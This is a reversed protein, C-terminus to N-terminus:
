EILQGSALRPTRSPFPWVGHKVGYYALATWEYAVYARDYRARWWYAPRAPSFASAPAVGVAVQEDALVSQFVALTRRTHYPSTVVLLRRIGHMRIYLRTAAAEGYTGQRGAPIMRIRNAAIGDAVLRATRNGCDHCSHETVAAPLTLLVLSGPFRKAFEAAAPLREWEHSALTLTADPPHATVSVVLAEGAFRLVLVVVAAIAALTAAAVRRRRTALHRWM